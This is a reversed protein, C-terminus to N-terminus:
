QDREEQLRSTAVDISQLRYNFRAFWVVASDNGAISYRQSYGFLPKAWVKAMEVTPYVGNESKYKRANSAFNRAAAENFKDIIFGLTMSAAFICVGLTFRQGARSSKGASSSFLAFGAWFFSAILTLSSLLAARFVFLDTSIIITSAALFWGAYIDVRKKPVSNEATV